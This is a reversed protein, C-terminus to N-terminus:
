IDNTSIAHCLTLMRVHESVIRSLSVKDSVYTPGTCNLNKRSKTMAVLVLTAFVM